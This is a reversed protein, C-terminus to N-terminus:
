ARNVGRAWKHSDVETKDEVNALRADIALEPRSYVEWQGPTEEFLFCACEQSVKEFFAESLFPERLVRQAIDQVAGGGPIGVLYSYEDEVLLPALDPFVGPRWLGTSTSELSPIDHRLEQLRQEVEDADNRDTYQFPGSQVDILWSLRRLQDMLPGFCVAFSDTTRFRIGRM